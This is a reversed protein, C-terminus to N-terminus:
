KKLQRIARLVGSVNRRLSDQKLAGRELAARISKADDRSGPMFLEGGAM